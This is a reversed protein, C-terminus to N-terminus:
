SATRVVNLRQTGILEADDFAQIKIKNIGIELPVAVEFPVPQGIKNETPLQLYIKDNNNFVQILKISGEDSAQGQITISTKSTLFQEAPMNVAITPSQYSQEEFLRTGAHFPFIIKTSEKFESDYLRFTLQDKATVERRMIFGLNMETQQGAPLPDIYQLANILEIDKDLPNELYLKLEGGNIKSINMIKMHLAITEGKEIQHNGNGKANFEEHDYWRSMLRYAPTTGKSRFFYHEYTLPLQATQDYFFIKIEDMREHESPPLTYAASAVRTTHAPLRGYILKLGAIAPQTSFIEGFVQNLTIDSDNSIAVRLEGENKSSLDALNEVRVTLKGKIKSASIPSEAQWEIHQEQFASAIKQAEAQRTARLLDAMNKEMVATSAAGAQSLIQSALKVDFDKKIEEQWADPQYNAAEKEANKRANGKSEPEKEVTDDFYTLRINPQSPDPLYRSRDFSDKELMSGAPVGLFPNYFEANSKHVGFPLTTLNPTIGKDHIWDGNPLLYRAVTIKLSTDKDLPYIKQIIGKGYTKVGLILGRNTVKIIGATIESASATRSNVLVILPLDALTGESEGEIQEVVEPTMKHNRGETKLLTGDGVFIDALATAQKLSGGENDRLDLVLGRFKPDAQQMAHLHKQFNEITNKSFNIIRIYGIHNDLPMSEINDITIIARTLEFEKNQFVDARSIALNVSTGPQGRMRHIADLISMNMTSEHDIAMIADGGKLGAKWAPTDPLIVLATIQDNRRGVRMGVGGLSGELRIDFNEKGLGTMIVTYKDLTELMGRLLTIAFDEPEKESEPYLPTYNEHLFHLIKKIMALLTKHNQVTDLPIALRAKTLILELNQADKATVLIEGQSKELKNLAKKLFNQYNIEEVNLYTSEVKTLAQDILKLKEPNNARDAGNQGAIDCSFLAFALLILLSYRFVKM